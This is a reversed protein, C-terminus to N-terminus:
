ERFQLNRREVPLGNPLLPNNLEIIRRDKLGSRRIVEGYYEQFLKEYSGDAIMKEMGITIDAALQENGKRVFYYSAAAYRFALTPEVMLQDQHADAELWVENVSRPFYDIRESELMSFLSDYNTTGYVKFGNARLIAFDPWDSGQGATLDRLEGSAAIQKWRAAQSKKIMLLRWGILGKDVPIRIPLLLSEREASTMYCVVDIGEGKQLQLLARGQQMRVDSKQLLYHRGSRQLVQELLFFPFQSRADRESEARPITVVTPAASGLLPVLVALLAFLARVPRLM